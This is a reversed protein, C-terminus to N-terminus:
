QQLYRCIDVVHFNKELVENRGQGRSGLQVSINVVEDLGVDSEQFLAPREGYGHLIRYPSVLRFSSNFFENVGPIKFTVDLAYLFVEANIFNPLGNDLHNVVEDIDVEHKM